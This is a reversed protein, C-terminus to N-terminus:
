LVNVFMMFLLIIKVSADLIAFMHEFMHKRTAEVQQVDIGVLKLLFTDTPFISLNASQACMKYVELLIKLLAFM